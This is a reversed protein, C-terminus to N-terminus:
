NEFLQKINQRIADHSVVPSVNSHRASSIPCTHYHWRHAALQGRLRMMTGLLLLLLLLRGAALSRPM